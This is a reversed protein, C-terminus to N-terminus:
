RRVGLWFVAAGCVIWAAPAYIQWIGYGAAALGAIWFVDRLEIAEGLSARAAAAFRHLNSM